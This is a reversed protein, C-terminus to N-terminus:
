MDVDEMCVYMCVYMCVSTWIIYAVLGARDTELIAIIYGASFPFPDRERGEALKV